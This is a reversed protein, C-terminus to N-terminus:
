DLSPARGPVSLRYNWGPDVRTYHCACFTHLPYWFSRLRVLVGSEPNSNKLYANVLDVTVRDANLLDSDKLDANELDVTELDGNVLDVTEPDVTEPDVTEPDVIM